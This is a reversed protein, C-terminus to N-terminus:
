TLYRDSDRNDSIESAIELAVKMKPVFGAGMAGPPATIKTFQITRYCDPNKSVESKIREFWDDMVISPLEIIIEM